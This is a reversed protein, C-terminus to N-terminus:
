VIASAIRNGKDTLLWKSRTLFEGTTASRKHTKENISRVLDLGKFEAVNFFVKEGRKIALLTAQTKRMAALETQNMKLGKHQQHHLQLVSKQM